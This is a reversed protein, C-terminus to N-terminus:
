WGKRYQVWKVQQAAFQVMAQEADRKTRYRKAVSWNGWVQGKGTGGRWGRWRWWVV